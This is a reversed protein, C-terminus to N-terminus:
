CLGLPAFVSVNYTGICLNTFISDTTINGNLDFAFGDPAGHIIVWGDCSSPCSANHVEVSINIPPIQVITVSATDTCANIDTVTVTYTGPACPMITSTTEGTSWMYIFPATGGTTGATISWPCSVCVYMTSPLQVDLTCQAKTFFSSLILVSLVAIKGAIKIQSNM